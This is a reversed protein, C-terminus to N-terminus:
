KVKTVKIKIPGKKKAMVEEKKEIKESVGKSTLVGRFPSINAMKKPKESEGVRIPEIEKTTIEEKDGVDASLEAKALHNNQRIEALLYILGVLLLLLGVVLFWFYINNLNFFTMANYDGVMQVYDNKVVDLQNNLDSLQQDTAQLSNVVNDGAQALLNQVLIFM